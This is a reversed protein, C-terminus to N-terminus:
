SKVSFFSIKFIENANLSRLHYTRSINLNICRYVTIKAYDWSAHSACCPSDRPKYTNFNFIPYHAFLNYKQMEFQIM